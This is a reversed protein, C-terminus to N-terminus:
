VLLDISKMRCSNGAAARGAFIRWTQAVAWRALQVQGVQAVRIPVLNTRQVPRFFCSLCTYIPMFRRIFWHIRASFAGTYHAFLQSNWPNVRDTAQACRSQGAAGLWEQRPAAGINLAACAAAQGEAM